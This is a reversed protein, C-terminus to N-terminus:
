YPKEQAGGTQAPPAEPFDHSVFMATIADLLQMGAPTLACRAADNQVWGHKQLEALVSGFIKDFRFGFRAEFDAMGIGDNHRLGLYVAEIIQQPYTVTEREEVPPRGRETLGIYRDLSGTNWWREPAIFSHAAPGFGLYPVFSWYKRNHRSRKEAACAFNSIEYQAFGNDALFRVATQFLEGVREDPLPAFAGRDKLGTLATGQAYTLMYCSLHHPRLAVAARMDAIWDTETQGALGYILDLGINDYGADMAWGVAARADEASHIRGLFRLAADSFSQVGINLRNVGARRFATLTEPTVTGPNAELTIEADASLALRGRVRALIRAVHDPDLLSPTGGGFYVTDFAPSAPPEAMGIERDLADLYAPMRLLDSESYFDCYLCRRVCFPVHIYIGGPETLLTTM